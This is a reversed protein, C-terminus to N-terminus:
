TLQTEEGADSRTPASLFESAHANTCSSRANRTVGCTACGLLPRALAIFPRVVRWGPQATLYRLRCHLSEIKFEARFLDERSRM